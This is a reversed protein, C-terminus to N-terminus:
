PTSRLPESPMTPYNQVPLLQISQCATQAHGNVPPMAQASRYSASSGSSNTLVRSQSAFALPVRSTQVGSVDTPSGYRGTSAPLNSMNPQTQINMVLAGTLTGSNMSAAAPMAGSSSNMSRSVIGYRTGSQLAQKSPAAFRSVQQQNPDFNMNPQWSSQGPASMPPTPLPPLGGPPAPVPSAPQSYQGQHPPIAPSQMPGFQRQAPLNLTGDASPTSMGGSPANSEPSSSEPFVSIPRQQTGYMPSVFQSGDYMQTNQPTYSMQQSPYNEYGNSTSDSGSNQCPPVAPFRSWCTQNFGWNPSCAASIHPRTPQEHPRDGALVVTSGLLILSSTAALRFLQAMQRIDM